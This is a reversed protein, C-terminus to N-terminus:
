KSNYCTATKRNTFAFNRQLTEGLDESYFITRDAKFRKPVEKYLKYIEELLELRQIAEAKQLNKFEKIEKIEKSDKVEELKM